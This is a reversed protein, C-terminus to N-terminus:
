GDDESGEASFFLRRFNVVAGNGGSVPVPRPRDVTKIETGSCVSGVSGETGFGDREYESQSAHGDDSFIRPVIIKVLRKCEESGKEM